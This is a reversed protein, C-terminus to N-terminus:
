LRQIYFDNNDGPNPVLSYISHEAFKAALCNTLVHTESGGYYMGELVHLVRM